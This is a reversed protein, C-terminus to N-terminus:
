EALQFRSYKPIGLIGENGPMMLLWRLKSGGICSQERKRTGCISM